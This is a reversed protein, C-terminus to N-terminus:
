GSASFPPRPFFVFRGPVPPNTAGEALQQWKSSQDRTINLDSLTTAGASSREKPQGRHAGANDGPAQRQGSEKM